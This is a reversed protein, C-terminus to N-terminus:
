YICSFSFSFYFDFKIFPSFFFCFIYMQHSVELSDIRCDNTNFTQFVTEFVRCDKGINSGAVIGPGGVLGCCVNGSLASTM